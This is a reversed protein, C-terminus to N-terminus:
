RSISTPTIILIGPPTIAHTGYGKCIPRSVVRAPVPNATAFLVRGFTVNLMYTATEQGDSFTVRLEYSAGPVVIDTVNLDATFTGYGPSNYM